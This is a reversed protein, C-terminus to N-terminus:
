SAGLVAAGMKTRRYAGFGLGAFGILMMTWTAPEPVSTVCDTAKVFNDDLTVAANLAIARGEISAGTDMTVSAVALITGEFTTTTGLTASSGVDWFVDCGCDSVVSSASATTLTSGIQFIFPGSGVLTLTGTLQASSSFYYVGSTLFLGGLDDGTLDETVPLAAIQNYATLADAQAQMAVADTQHITGNVAGPLLGTISTGPYVGVDGDIASAGTNTVASAGLVAFSGASGLGITASFAPALGSLTLIAALAISAKM